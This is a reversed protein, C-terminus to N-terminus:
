CQGNELWDQFFVVISLITDGLADLHPLSLRLFHIHEKMGGPSQELCAEADLKYSDDEHGVPETLGRVLVKLNLKVVISLCLWSVIDNIWRLRVVAGDVIEFSSGFNNLWLRLGDISLNPIRKSFLRDVHSVNGELLDLEIIILELINESLHSELLSLGENRVVSGMMRAM